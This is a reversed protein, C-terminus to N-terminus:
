GSIIFEDLQLKIKVSVNSCAVFVDSCLLINESFQLLISSDYAADFIFGCQHSLCACNNKYISWVIINLLFCLKIYRGYYMCLFCLCLESVDNYRWHLYFCVCRFLFM